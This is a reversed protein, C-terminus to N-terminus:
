PTLPQAVKKRVILFSNSKHWKKVWPHLDVYRLGHRADLCPVYQTRDIVGVSGLSVIPNRRQDDPHYKGYTLLHEIGALQWPGGTNFDVLSSSVEESFVDEAFQIVRFEWEDTTVSSFPFNKQNIRRDFIGLMCGDIMDSCSLSGDVIHTVIACVTRGVKTVWCADKRLFAKLMKWWVDGDQSSLKAFLDRLIGIPPTADAGVIQDLSELLNALMGLMIKM